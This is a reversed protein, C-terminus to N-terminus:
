VNKRAEKITDSEWIGSRTPSKLDIRNCIKGDIVKDKLSVAYQLMEEECTFFKEDLQCGGYESSRDEIAVHFATMKFTHKKTEEHFAWNLTKM